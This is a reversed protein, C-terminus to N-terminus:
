AHWHKPAIGADIWLRFGESRAADYLAWAPEAGGIADLDAVYCEDFGFTTKLAGAVGRVSADGCLRSEIPRYESRRGAIGRVVAGGKLDLVPLIRMTLM